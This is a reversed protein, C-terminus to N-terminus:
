SASILIVVRRNQQRGAATQNSEVPDREGLGLVSLNAASFGSLVIVNAVAQARRQSLAENYEETGTDDAYGEIRARDIGVGLLASAIHSISTAEDANITADNIAFLLRDDMSFSWGRSTPVFGQQKLVAIQRNSLGQTVTMNTQCGSLLSASTSIILLPLLSRSLRTMM